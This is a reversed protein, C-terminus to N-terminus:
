LDPDQRHWFGLLYGWRTRRSPGLERRLESLDVNRRAMWRRAILGLILFTGFYLGGALLARMADSKM